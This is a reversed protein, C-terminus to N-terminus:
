QKSTNYELTKQCIINSFESAFELYTEVNKM